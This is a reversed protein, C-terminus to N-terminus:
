KITLCSIYLVTVIVGIIAFVLGYVVHISDCYEGTYLWDCSICKGTGAAGDSCVGNQCTHRCDGYCARGYWGPQCYCTKPAICKGRYPNCESSSCSIQDCFKGQWGKQCEMSNMSSFYSEKASFKLGTRVDASLCYTSSTIRGLYSEMLSENKDKIEKIQHLGFHLLEEVAAKLIIDQTYQKLNVVVSPAKFPCLDQIDLLNMLGSFAEHCLPKSNQCLPSVFANSVSTYPSLSMWKRGDIPAVAMQAAVKYLLSAHTSYLVTVILASPHSKILEGYIKYQDWSEKQVGLVIDAVVTVNLLNMLFFEKYTFKAQTERFIIMQITRGNGEHVGIDTESKDDQLAFSFRFLSHFFSDTYSSSLFAVNTYSNELHEKKSSFVLTPVDYLAAFSAIIGMNSGPEIAFILDVRSLETSDTSTMAQLQNTLDSSADFQYTQIHIDSGLYFRNRVSERSFNYYIDLANNLLFVVKVENIFNVSFNQTLINEASSSFSFSIVANSRKQCSYGRLFATGTNSLHSTWKTNPCDVGIISLSVSQNLLPGHPYLRNGLLLSVVFHFDQNSRLTMNQEAGSIQMNTPSIIPTFLCYLFSIETVNPSDNLLRFFPHLHSRKISDLTQNAMTFNIREETMQFTTINPCTSNLALLYFASSIPFNQITDTEEDHRCCYLDDLLLSFVM